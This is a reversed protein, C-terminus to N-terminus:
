IHNLLLSRLIDLPNRNAAGRNNQANVAAGV